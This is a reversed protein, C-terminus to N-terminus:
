KKALLGIVTSISDLSIADLKKLNCIVENLCEPNTNNEDFFEQPTVELFECINFFIEM